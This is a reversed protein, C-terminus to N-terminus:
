PKTFGQPPTAPIIQAPPLATLTDPTCLPQLHCFVRVGNLTGTSFRWWWKYFPGSAATPVPQAMIAQSTAIGGAGIAYLRWNTLLGGWSFDASQQDAMLSRAAKAMGAGAAPMTRIITATTQVLDIM